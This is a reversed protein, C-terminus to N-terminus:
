LDRLQESLWTKDEEWADELSQYLPLTETMIKDVVEALPLVENATLEGSAAGCWSWPRRMDSVVESCIHPQGVKLGSDSSWVTWIKCDSLTTFLVHFSQPDGTGSSQCLSSGLGRWGVMIPRYTVDVLQSLEELLCSVFKPDTSWLCGWPGTNQPTVDPLDRLPDHAPWEVPEETPPAVPGHVSALAAHIAEKVARNNENPIYLALKDYLGAVAKAATTSGAEDNFSFADENESPCPVENGVPYIGVHTTWTRKGSAVRSNMKVEAALVSSQSAGGSPGDVTLAWASSQSKGDCEREPDWDTFAVDTSSGGKNIRVTQNVAPSHFRRGGRDVYRLDDPEYPYDTTGTEDGNNTISRCLINFLGWVEKTPASANGTRLGEIPPRNNKGDLKGKCFYEIDGRSVRSQTDNASYYSVKSLNVCANNNILNSVDRCAHSSKPNLYLAVPRTAPVELSSAVHSLHTFFGDKGLDPPRLYGSQTMAKRLRIYQTVLEVTSVNFLVRDLASPGGGETKKNWLSLFTKGFDKASENDKMKKSIYRRLLNRQDQGRIQEKIDIDLLKTMIKEDFPTKVKASKILENFRGMVAPGGTLSLATSLPPAQPFMHRHVRQQLVTVMAAALSAPRRVRGDGNKNKPLEMDGDCHEETNEKTDRGRFGVSIKNNKNVYVILKPPSDGTLFREEKKNKVRRYVGLHYEISPVRQVAALSGDAPKRYTQPRWCHGWRIQDVRVSFTEERGALPGKQGHSVSEPREVACAGLWLCACFASSATMRFFHM